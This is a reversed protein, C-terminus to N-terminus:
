RKSIKYDQFLMLLVKDMQGANVGANWLHERLEIPDVEKEEETSSKSEKYPFDGTIFDGEKLNSSQHIINSVKESGKCGSCDKCQQKCADEGTAEKHWSPAPPPALRDDIKDGCNRCCEGIISNEYGLIPIIDHGYVDCESANGSDILFKFFVDQTTYKKSDNSRFWYGGLRKAIQTFGSSPVWEVFEISIAQKDKM